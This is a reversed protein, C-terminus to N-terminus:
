ALDTLDRLFIKWTQSHDGSLVLEFSEL